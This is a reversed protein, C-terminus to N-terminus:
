LIPFLLAVVFAVFLTIWALQAYTRCSRHLLISCLLLLLASVACLWGVVSESFTNARGLDSVIIWLFSAVFTLELSLLCLRAMDTKSKSLM